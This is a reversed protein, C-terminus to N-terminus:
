LKWRRMGALANTTSFLATGTITMIADGTWTAATNITAVGGRAWGWRKPTANKERSYTRSWSDHSFTARNADKIWQRTAKINKPDSVNPGWQDHFFSASDVGSRPHAVNHTMLLYALIAYSNDEKEGNNQLFNHYTLLTFKLDDNSLKGLFSSGSGKMYNEYYHLAGLYALVWKDEFTDGALFPQVVLM